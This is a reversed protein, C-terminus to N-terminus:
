LEIINIDGPLALHNGVSTTIVGAGQERAADAVIDACIRNNVADLHSVPEDLMIFDFPQCLARVLAVRQQQGVSLRGAPVDARDAIGLRDLMRRIDAESRHDTLRNKLLINDIASLEAFLDLSQPLYALSRRRLACWDGIGYGAIDTGDFAIRGEYDTRLGYIFACMSTKGMGSSADIRYFRGRHLELRALWVQSTTVARSDREAAFVRPLVDTLTITQM